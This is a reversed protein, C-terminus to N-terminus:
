SGARVREWLVLSLDTESATMYVNPDPCRVQVLECNQCQFTAKNPCPSCKGGKEKVNNCCMGDFPSAPLPDSITLDDLLQPIDSIAKQADVTSGSKQLQAM